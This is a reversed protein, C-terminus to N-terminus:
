DSYYSESMMYSEITKLKADTVKKIKMKKIVDDVKKM